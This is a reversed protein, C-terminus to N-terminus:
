HHAVVQLESLAFKRTEGNDCRVLAMESRTRYFGVVTGTRGDPVRVRDRFRVNEATRTPPALAATAAM